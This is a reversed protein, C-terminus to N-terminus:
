ATAEIGKGSIVETSASVLFLIQPNGSGRAAVVCEGPGLWDSVEESFTQGTRRGTRVAESGRFGQAQEGKFDVASLDAEPGDLISQSM